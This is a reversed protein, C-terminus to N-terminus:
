FCHLAQYMGYDIDTMRISTKTHNDSHRGAASGNNDRDETSLPPCAKDGCMFRIRSPTNHFDDNIPSREGGDTVAALYLLRGLNELGQGATTLKIFHRPQVRLLSTNGTQVLIWKVHYSAARAWRNRRRLCWRLCLSWM